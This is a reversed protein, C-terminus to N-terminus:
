RGMTLTPTSAQQSGLVHSKEQKAQQALSKMFPVKPDFDNEPRSNTQALQEINQLAEADQSMEHVDQYQADSVSPRVENWYGTILDNCAKGLRQDQQFVDIHQKKCALMDKLFAYFGSLTLAKDICHLEVLNGVASYVHQQVGPHTTRNGNFPIINSSAKYACFEESSLSELTMWDKEAITYRLHANGLIISVWRNVFDYHNSCVLSTM